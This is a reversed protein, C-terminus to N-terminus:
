NKNQTIAATECKQNGIKTGCVFIKLYDYDFHHNCKNRELDAKVMLECLTELSTKAEWNLHTKSKDM